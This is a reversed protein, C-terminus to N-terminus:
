ARGALGGGTEEIDVDVQATLRQGVLAGGVAVRQGPQDLLASGLGPDGERAL